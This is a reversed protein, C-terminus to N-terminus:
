EARASDGAEAEAAAEAIEKRIQDMDLAEMQSILDELASAPVAGSERFVLVGDRFGMLTPISSIGAAGALQQEAETDIKGFTIEPHKESVAEFIPSFQKCPGCWDAWFDVLVIGGHAVNAEFTAETLDITAM